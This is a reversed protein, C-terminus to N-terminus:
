FWKEREYLIVTPTMLERSFVPSHLKELLLYSFFSSTFFLFQNSNEAYM